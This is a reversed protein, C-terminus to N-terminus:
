NLQPGKPFDFAYRIFRSNKEDVTVVTGRPILIGEYRFDVLSVISDGRGLSITNGYQGFPGGPLVPKTATIYMAEEMYNSFDPSLRGM